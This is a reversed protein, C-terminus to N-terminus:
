SIQLPLQSINLAQKGDKSEVCTCSFARYNLVSETVTPTTLFKTPAVPIKCSFDHNMDYKTTTAAAAAAAIAIHVQLM